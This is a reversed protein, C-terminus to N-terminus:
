KAWSVYGAENAILATGDSTFAIRRPTGGVSITRTVSRSARDVVKVQGTAMLTVLLKTRNPSPTIAAGFGGSGLGLNVRAMLAGSILSYVFLRGEENV